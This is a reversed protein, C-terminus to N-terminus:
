GSVPVAIMRKVKQISMKNRQKYIKIITHEQYEILTKLNNIHLKSFLDIVKASSSNTWKIPTYLTQQYM